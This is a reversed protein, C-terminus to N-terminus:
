VRLKCRWLFGFVKLCASAMAELLRRERELRAIIARKLLDAVDHVEDRLQELRLGRVAEPVPHLERRLLDAGIVLAIPLREVKEAFELLV